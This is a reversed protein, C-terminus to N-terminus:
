FEIPNPTVTISSNDIIPIVKLKDFAPVGLNMYFGGKATGAIVEATSPSAVSYSNSTFNLYSVNDVNYFSRCM